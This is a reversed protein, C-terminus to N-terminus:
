KKEAKCNTPACDKGETCEKGDPTCKKEAKKAPAAPAPDSAFALGTAGLVLAIVVSKLM